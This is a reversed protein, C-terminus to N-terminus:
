HPQNYGNITSCLVFALRKKPPPTPELSFKIYHGWNCNHIFLPVNLHSGMNVKEEDDKECMAVMGSYM